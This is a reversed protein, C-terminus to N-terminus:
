MGHRLMKAKSTDALMSSPEAFKKLNGWRDANCTANCLTESHTRDRFPSWLERTANCTGIPCQLTVRFPGSIWKRCRQLPDRM